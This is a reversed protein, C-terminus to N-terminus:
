MSLPVRITPSIFPIAQVPLRPVRANGPLTASGGFTLTGFVMAASLRSKINM